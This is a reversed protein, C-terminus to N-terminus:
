RRAEQAREWAAALQLGLTCGTGTGPIFGEHWRREPLPRCGGRCHDLHGIYATMALREYEAATIELMAELADDTAQDERWEASPIAGDVKM